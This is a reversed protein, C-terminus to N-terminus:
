KRRNTSGGSTAGSSGSSGTSGSAGAKSKSGKSAKRGSAKGRSTDQRGSSAGNSRHQTGSTGVTGTGSTGRRTGPTKEDQSDQNQDAKNNQDDRDVQNAKAGTNRDITKSRDNGNHDRATGANPDRNREGSETPIRPDVGVSGTPPEDTTGGRPVQPTQGARDTTGQTRPSSPVGNGNGVQSQGAGSSPTAGQAHSLQPAALGLACALAGTMVASKLRM